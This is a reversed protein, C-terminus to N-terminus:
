INFFDEDSDAALTFNISFKQEEDGVHLYVDKQNAVLNLSLTKYENKSTKILNYRKNNYKVFIDCGFPPNEIRFRLNQNNSLYADCIEARWKRELKKSSIFFIPVLVEEPTCGGHTGVGEPTKKSLSKHSLSCYTKQDELIIYNNDKVLKGGARIAVRGYHNPDIGELNLGDFKQAMWTM